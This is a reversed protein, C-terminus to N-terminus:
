YKQPSTYIISFGSSSSSYIQSPIGYDFLLLPNLNTNNTISSPYQASTHVYIGGTIDVNKTGGLLFRNSLFYGYNRTNIDIFIDQMFLLFTPRSVSGLYLKEATSFSGSSYVTAEITEWQNNAGNITVNGNVVMTGTIICRQGMTLNGNIVLLSGNTITLNKRNAINVNGSIYVFGNITPDVQNSLQTPTIQTFYGLSVLYQIYTISESFTSLPSLPSALPFQNNTLDILYSALLTEVTVLPNLAFTPEVGTYQFTSNYTSISGDGGTVQFYSVVESTDQYIDSVKYVSNGMDQITVGLYSALDQLFLADTNEERVIISLAAEVNQRSEIYETETTISAEILKAKNVVFLFVSTIIIMVLSIIGLMSIFSFGHKQKIIKM